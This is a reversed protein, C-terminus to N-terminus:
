LNMPHVYINRLNCVRGNNIETWIVICTPLVWCTMHFHVDKVLFTETSTLAYTLSICGLLDTFVDTLESTLGNVLIEPWFMGYRM